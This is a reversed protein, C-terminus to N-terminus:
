LVGRPGADKLVVWVGLRSKLGEYVLCRRWRQMLLMVGAAGAAAARRRLSGSRARDRGGVRDGIRPGAGPRARRRVRRARREPVGAVGSRLMLNSLPCHVVNTGQRALRATEHQDVWVCHALAAHKGSIGVSDLYAIEEMGTTRLVTEREVITEAAHTHVQAGF